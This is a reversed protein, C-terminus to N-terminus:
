YRVEYLVVRSPEWTNLTRSTPVQTDHEYTPVLHGEEILQDFQEALEWTMGHQGTLREMGGFWHEDWFVHTIGLDQWRALLSEASHISSYDILGPQIHISGWVYDVDLYYTQIPFSLLRASSPLTQNIYQIDEYYWAKKALHEDQTEFGFVVPFFQANMLGGVGLGFGLSIILTGATAVAVLRSRKLLEAAASAALLALVPWLPDLYHARARNFFWILYLAGTYVLLVIVGQKGRSRNGTRACLLLLHGPLLAILAPPAVSEVNEFFVVDTMLRWPGLVLDVLITVLDGQPWRGDEEFLRMIDPSVCCGSFVENMYPWLPNGTGIWNRVYSPSGVLAAVCGFIAAALAWRRIHRLGGRAAAAVGISAALALFVFLGHTKSGIGLGAFGGALVIRRWQATDIWTLLAHLALVAYCALALDPKAASMMQTVTPLSVYLLVGLLAFPKSLCLHRRAILYVGGAAILGFFCNVLNAVVGNRLLLGVTFLMEIGAPFGSGVNWVFYARHAQAYLKPLALYIHLADAFSPPALAAVLDSLLVLAVLGGLIWSMWGGLRMDNARGGDQGWAKPVRTRGKYRWLAFGGVILGVSVFLWALWPYLLGLFGAGMVLMSLVGAGLGAALVLRELYGNAPGLLREILPLGLGIMSICLLGGTLLNLLSEIM